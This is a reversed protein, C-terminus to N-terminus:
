PQPAPQKRARIAKCAARHEDWHLKQCQADCYAVSSCRACKRLKRGDNKGCAGCSTRGIGILSEATEKFAPLQEELRREKQLVFDEHNEPFMHVFTSASRSLLPGEKRLCQAVAGFLPLAKGYTRRWDLAGRAGEEDLYHLVSVVSGCRVMVCLQCTDHLEPDGPGAIGKRIAGGRRMYVHGDSAVDLLARAGAVPDGPTPARNRAARWVRNNPVGLVEKIHAAAADGSRAVDEDEFLRFKTKGFNTDHHRYGGEFFWRAHEESDCPYLVCQGPRGAMRGHLSMMRCSVKVTTDPTGVRMPHMVRAALGQTAELGAILPAQEPQM